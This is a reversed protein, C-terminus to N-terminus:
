TKPEVGELKYYNYLERIGINLKDALDNEIYLELFYNLKSYYTYKLLEELEEKYNSEISLNIIELHTRYFLGILNNINLFIAHFSTKVNIKRRDTNKHSSNRLHFYEILYLNIAQIGIFNYKKSLVEIESLNSILTNGHFSITFSNIETIILNIREKYNNFIFDNTNDTQQKKFQLKIEENADIQARLAFYVLISGFFGLFPSTIGGITDGIAGTQNNFQIIGTRTFVFPLSITVIGAIFIGIKEKRKLEIKM